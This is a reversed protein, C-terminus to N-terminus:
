INKLDVLEYFMSYETKLYKPFMNVKYVQKESYFCVRNSDYGRNGSIRFSYQTKYLRM